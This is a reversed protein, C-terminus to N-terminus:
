FCWGKTLFFKAANIPIQKASDTLRSHFFSFVKYMLTYKSRVFESEIYAKVFYEHSNNLNLNRDKNVFSYENLFMHVFKSDDFSNTKTKCKHKLFNQAVRKPTIYNIDYLVENNKKQLIETVRDINNALYIWIDFSSNYVITTSIYYNTVQEENIHGSCDVFDDYLNPNSALFLYPDFEVYKYECFYEKMITEKNTNKQGAVLSLYNIINRELGLWFGYECYFKAVNITTLSKRKFYNDIVYKHQIYYSNDLFQSDTNFITKREYLKMALSLVNTKQLTDKYILVYSEYKVFYPYNQKKFKCKLKPKLDNLNNALWVCEDFLLPRKDDIKYFYKLAEFTNYPVDNYSLIYRMVDFENM